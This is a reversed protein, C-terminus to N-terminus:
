RRPGPKKPPIKKKARAVGDRLQLTSVGPRARRPVLAAKAEGTVASYDRRAAAVVDRVAQEGGIGMKKLEEVATEAIDLLADRVKPSKRETGIWVAFMCLEAVNAHLQPKGFFSRLKTTLREISGPELALPEKKGEVLCRMAEDVMPIKHLPGGGYTM